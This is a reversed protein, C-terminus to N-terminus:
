PSLLDLIKHEDKLRIQLISAARRSVTAPDIETRSLKDYVKVVLDGLTTTRSTMESRRETPPKKCLRGGGRTPAARVVQM